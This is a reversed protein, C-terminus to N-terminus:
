SVEFNNICEITFAWASADTLAVDDFSKVHASDTTFTRQREPNLDKIILSTIPVHNAHYQQLKYVMSSSGRLTFKLSDIKDDKFLVERGGGKGARTEGADGGTTVEIDADGFDNKDIAYGNISVYIQGFQISDLTM